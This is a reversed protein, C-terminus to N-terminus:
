KKNLLRLHRLLYKQIRAINYLVWVSKSSWLWWLKGCIKPKIEALFLVDFVCFWLLSFLQLRQSLRDSTYLCRTCGLATFVVWKLKLFMVNAVESCLVHRELEVGTFRYVWVIYILVSVSSNESWCGSIFTGWYDTRMCTLAAQHVTHMHTHSHSLSLSLLHSPSLSPSHSFTFAHTLAPWCILWDAFSLLILAPCSWLFALRLYRNAATRHHSWGELEGHM